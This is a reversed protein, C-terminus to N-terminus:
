DYRAKSLQEYHRRKDDDPEVLALGKLHGRVEDSTESRLWLDIADCIDHIGEDSAVGWLSAMFICALSRNAEALTELSNMLIAVAEARERGPQGETSAAQGIVKSVCGQEFILRLDNLTTKSFDRGLLRKSGNTIMEDEISM